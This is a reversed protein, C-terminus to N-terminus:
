VARWHARPEGDKRTCRMPTGKATLGYSGEPACFAGPRVNGVPKAITPKPKPKFTAKPAPKRTPTTARKKTPLPKVAPTPAATTAAPTTTPPETAPTPSAEAAPISTAIPRAAPQPSGCATLALLVTLAATGARAKKGRKASAPGTAQEPMM